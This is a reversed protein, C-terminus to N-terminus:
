RHGHSLSVSGDAAAGVSADANDATLPLSPLEIDGFARPQTGRHVADPLRQECPEAAVDDVAPHEIEEGSRAREGEFRQGAAGRGRGEDLAVPGGGGNQPGGGRAEARVAANVHRGRGLPKAPLPFPVPVENEHVRREARPEADLRQRQEAPAVGQHVELFRVGTASAIM